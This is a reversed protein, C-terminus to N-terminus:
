GGAIKGVASFLPEAIAKIQEATAKGKKIKVGKFELEIETTSILLMMSAVLGVALITEVFLEQPDYEEWSRVLADSLGGDQAMQQLTIRAIGISDEPELRKGRTEEDLNDLESLEALDKLEPSVGNMVADPTTGEFLQKGFHELFHVAEVDSMSNVIEIAKESM